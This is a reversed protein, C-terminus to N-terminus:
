AGSREEQIRWQGGERVLILTKKGQDQFRDSRYTQLFRGEAATESLVTVQLDEVLVEIFNPSTLRQRRQAEWQSRSLGAPPEFGAGYAALYDEPKQDSWARAWRRILLEAQLKAEILASDAVAQAPPEPDSAAANSLDGPSTTGSGPSAPAPESNLAEADTPRTSPDPDQGETAEGRRQQEQVWPPVHTATLAVDDGGPLGLRDRFMSAAVGVAVALVLLVVLGAWGRWWPLDASRSIATRSESQRYVPPPLRRIPSPPAKAEMGLIGELTEEVVTRLDRLEPPAATEKLIKEVAARIQQRSDDEIKVFRLGMGPPRYPGEEEARQWVVEALGEIPLEQPDLSFRFTALTGAPRPSSSRIFLGTMSLNIGVEELVQEEESFRLLVKKLLPIRRSELPVPQQFDKGQM